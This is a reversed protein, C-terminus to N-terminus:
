RLFYLSPPCQLRGLHHEEWLAGSRVEHIKINGSLILFKANKFNKDLEKAQRM